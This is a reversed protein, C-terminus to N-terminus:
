NPSHLAHGNQESFRYARGDIIRWCIIVLKRIKHTSRGIREAFNVRLLLITRPWVKRRFSRVLREHYEIAHSDRPRYKYAVYACATPLAVTTVGVVHRLKVKFFLQRAMLIFWRFAALKFSCLSWPCRCQVDFPVRLINSQLKYFM